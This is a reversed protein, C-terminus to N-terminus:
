RAEGTPDRRSPQNRCLLVVIDVVEARQGDPGDAWRRPTDAREVRWQEPDLDLGAALEHPTPFRTPRDRNWSWPAVSGHDVILMRGGPVVSGAATRLIGARALEFPSQLYQASVLDFRGRPVSRSLDHQEGTIRDSLGLREATAALRAVATASIDVATVQWGHEALWLADGGGGCGLDLAAGPDLDAAAEALLPNVRPREAPRHARHHREWFRAATDDTDPTTTM